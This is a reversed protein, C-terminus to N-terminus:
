ARNPESFLFASEGGAEDSREWGWRSGPPGDAAEGEGQVCTSSINASSAVVPRHYFGPALDAVCAETLNPIEALAAKLGDPVPFPSADRASAMRDAPPKNGLFSSSDIASVN